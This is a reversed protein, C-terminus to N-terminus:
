PIGLFNGKEYGREYNNFLEAPHSSDIVRAEAVTPGWSPWFSTNDYESLYGQTFTKQVDPFKNVEETGYTSTVSIRFRGAKGTKTTIIVAGTSARSGYLATAAGGKLITISEIDDPNIDAARNTMGNIEGTSVDTNNDIPLGDVIFLPQFPRSPDLSTIGRMVIRAGQGPAGGGSNIQLGTTRGQLANVINTQHSQIIESTKVEETSYGLEKRQRRIGLATVVVESLDNVSKLVINIESRDGVRIEQTQFDVSSVVLISNSSPVEISFRGNDDAATGTSTGKIILSALPVAGGKNDTIRGSIQRAQGFVMPPMFIYSYGM